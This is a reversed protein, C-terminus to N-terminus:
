DSMKNLHYWKNCIWKTGSKVPNGGHFSEQIINGDKLTSYFLVCKGREPKVSYDLRPFVTEGGEFDDNLYIIFTAYRPGGKGNMRECFEETGQCADYHPIFFGGQDYKVVQLSEAYTAPLNIIQSTREAIKNVVPDDTDRLWTQKSVRSEQKYLDDSQSYVMSQHLSQKSIEIIHDCEENTLFNPYETLIEVKGQGSVISNDTIVNGEILVFSEKKEFSLVVCMMVIVVVIMFPTM